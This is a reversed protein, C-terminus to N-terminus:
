EEDIRQVDILITDPTYRLVAFGSPVIPSIEVEYKGPGGIDACDALLSFDASTTSELLLLKGQVKISGAIEQGSVNLEPPLDIYILGIDEFTKLIVTETIVGQFGVSDGSPFSLYPDQVDLRTRVYFDEKRGELDIEETQIFELQEVHSAPGEVIAVETSLIYQDLEYGNEPYGTLIPEIKVSRSIKRELELIIEPPDLRIELEGINKATGAKIFKVSARFQGESSHESFDAYVEIDDELILFISEEAGRLSVKVSSPVTSTVAYSENIIINLPVSFFRDELNTARFFLFLIMAAVISIIKAPWNREIIRSWRSPM